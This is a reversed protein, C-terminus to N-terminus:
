NLAWDKGNIYALNTASGAVKAIHFKRKSPDVLNLTPTEGDEAMREVKNGM